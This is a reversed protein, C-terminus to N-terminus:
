RKSVKLFKIICIEYFNYKSYYTTIKKGIIAHQVLPVNVDLQYKRRIYKNIKKFFSGFFAGDYSYSLLFLDSRFFAFHFIVIKNMKMYLCFLFFYLLSVSKFWRCLNIQLKGWIYFKYLFADILMMNKKQAISITKIAYISLVFHSM